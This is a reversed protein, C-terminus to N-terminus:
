LSSNENTGLMMRSNFFCNSLYSAFMTRLVENWIWKEYISNLLEKIKDAYYKKRILISGIKIVSVLLILGLVVFIITVLFIPM